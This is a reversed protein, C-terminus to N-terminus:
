QTYLQYVAAKGNGKIEYGWFPVRNWEFANEREQMRKIENSIDGTVSLRLGNQYQGETLFLYPKLDLSGYPVQLYINNNYPLKGLLFEQINSEISLFIFGGSVVRETAWGLYISPGGSGSFNTYNLLKVSAINSQSFTNIAPQSNNIITSALINTTEMQSNLFNDLSIISEKKSPIKYPLIGNKSDSLQSDLVFISDEIYDMRDETIKSGLEWNYKKYEYAM